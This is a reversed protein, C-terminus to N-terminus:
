LNKRTKLKYLALNTVNGNTVAFINTQFWMHFWM